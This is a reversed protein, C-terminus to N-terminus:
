PMRPPMRGGLVLRIYQFLLTIIKKKGKAQASDVSNLKSQRALLVWKKEPAHLSSSATQFGEEEKDEEQCSIRRTDLVAAKYGFPQHSNLADEGGRGSSHM